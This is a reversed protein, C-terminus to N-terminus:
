LTEERDAAPKWAAAMERDGRGDMRGASFKVPGKSRGSVKGM